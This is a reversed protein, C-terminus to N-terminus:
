SEELGSKGMNKQNKIYERVADDSATIKHPALCSQIFDIMPGYAKGPSKNGEPNGVATKIPQGLPGSWIEALRSILESLAVKGEYRKRNEKKNQIVLEGSKQKANKSWELIQKIGEITDRLQARGGYYTFPEEDVISTMPPHNDFGGNKKATSEAELRLPHLIEFSIDDPNGSDPLELKRLLASSCNEIAQFQKQMKSSSKKDLWEVSIFYWEASEQLREAVVKRTNASCTVPCTSIIAEIDKESYRQFDTALKEGDKEATKEM